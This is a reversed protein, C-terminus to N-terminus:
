KGAKVEDKHFDRLHKDAGAKSFFPGVRHGEHNYYWLDCFRYVKLAPRKLTAELCTNKEMAGGKDIVWLAAIKWKL